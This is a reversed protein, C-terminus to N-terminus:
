SDHSVSPVSPRHVNKSAYSMYAKIADDKKWNELEEKREKLLSHAYERREEIQHLTLPAQYGMPIRASSPTGGAQVKVKEPVPKQEIISTARLQETAAQPALSAQHWSQARDLNKRLDTNLRTVQRSLAIKNAMDDASELLSCWATTMRLQFTIYCTCTFINGFLM